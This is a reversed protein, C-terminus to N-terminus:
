AAVEDGGEGDDPAQHRPGGSIKADNVSKLRKMLATNVLYKRWDEEDDVDATEVMDPPMIRLFPLPDQHDEDAGSAPLLWTKSLMAVGRRTTKQETDNVQLPADLGHLELTHESGYGDVKDDDVRHGFIPMCLDANIETKDIAFEENEHEYDAVFGEIDGQMKNSIAIQRATM